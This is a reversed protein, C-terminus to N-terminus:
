LWEFDTDKYLGADQQHVDDPDLGDESHSFSNFQIMDTFGCVRDLSPTPETNGSGRSILVAWFQINQCHFCHGRM